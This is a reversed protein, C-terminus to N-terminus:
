VSMSFIALQDSNIIIFAACKFCGSLESHVVSEFTLSSPSDWGGMCFIQCCTLNCTHFLDPRSPTPFPQSVFSIAEIEGSVFELNVSFCFFLLWYYCATLIRVMAAINLDLPTESVGSKNCDGEFM